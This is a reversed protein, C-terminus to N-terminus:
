QTLFTLHPDSLEEIPRNNRLINELFFYVIFFIFFMSCIMIILDWPFQLSMASDIYRSAFAGIMSSAVILFSEKSRKEVM